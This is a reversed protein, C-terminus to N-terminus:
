VRRERCRRLALRGNTNWSLLGLENKSKPLNVREWRPLVSEPWTGSDNISLYSWDRSFSSGVKDVTGQSEHPGHGGSASERQRRSCFGLEKKVPKVPNIGSNIKSGKKALVPMTGDDSKSISGDAGSHSPPGPGAWVEGLGLLM